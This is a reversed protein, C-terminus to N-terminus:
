PGGREAAIWGQLIRAAAASAELAGEVTNSGNHAGFIINDFDRLRSGTGLPEMSYVDLAAGAIRKLKLCNTLAVEDVVGGRSVNVFFGSPKLVGLTETSVFHRTEHTLPLTSIMYDFTRGSPFDVHIMGPEAGQLSESWYPDLAESQVGISHLLKHVARGLNGFGLILASKGRMRSGQYKPWAGNRVGENVRSIGRELDLLMGLVLEAVDPGFQGPTNSFRIGRRELSQTDISDYGIGWKILGKLGGHLSDETVVDDGVIAYDADKLHAKMERASFHQSAVPPCDFHIESDGFEARVSDLSEQMQLCTIVVRITRVAVEHRGGASENPNERLVRDAIM